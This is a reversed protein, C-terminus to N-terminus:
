SLDGRQVAAALTLADSGVRSFTYAFEFAPVRENIKRSLADLDQTNSPFQDRPIFHAHQVPDVFRLEDFRRAAEARSLPTIQPARLDYDLRPFIIADVNSSPQIGVGVFEEIEYPYMLATGNPELGEEILRPLTANAPHTLRSLISARTGPGRLVDFTDLRVSVSRPGGQGVVRGDDIGFTLDDNSVITAAAQSALALMLSTKGARSKGAIAVGKGGIVVLASAVPLRGVAVARLRHLARTYRLMNQVIWDDSTPSICYIARDAPSIGICSELEGRPTVYHLQVSGPTVGIPPESVMWTNKPREADPSIAFYPASVRALAAANQESCELTTKWIQSEVLFFRRERYRDHNVIGDSAATAM